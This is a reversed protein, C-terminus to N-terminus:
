LIVSWHGCYIDKTHTVHIKKLEVNPFWEKPAIVIQDPTSNIWTGWWGFSSNCVINHDCLSLICLDLYQGTNDLFHINNVSEFNKRCWELDDSAVVFNFDGISQFHKFSNLYYDLSLTANFDIYDGRRVHVGVNKLGNQSISGLISTSMRVIPEKFKLVSLLEKRYKIFYKECQFYGDITTDPLIDWFKPNYHFFPETYTKKPRIDKKPVLYSNPLDFCNYLEIGCERYKSKDAVFYINEEPIVLPEALHQSLGFLASFQFLQNGIRGKHGLILSTIM